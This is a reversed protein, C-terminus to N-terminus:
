DVFDNFLGGYSNGSVVCDSVTLGSITATKGPFVGLGLLAQNGDISLQDAGPRSINNNTVTTAASHGIVVIACFLLVGVIASHVRSRMQGESKDFCVLIEQASGLL